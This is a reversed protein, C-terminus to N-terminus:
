VLGAVDGQGGGGGQGQPRARLRHPLRERAGRPRAPELAEVEVAGPDEVARVVRLARRGQGRREVVEARPRGRHDDARRRVLVQRAHERRQRGPRGHDDGRPRRRRARGRGALERGRGRARAGRADLLRGVRRGRQPQGAAQRASALEHDHRPRQEEDALDPRQQEAGRGLAALAPLSPRWPARHGRGSRVRAQAAAPRAGDRGRAGRWSERGSPRLGDRARGRGPEPRARGARVRGVALRALAVAAMAAALAAAMVADERPWGHRDLSVLVLLPFLAVTVLIAADSDRLAALLAVLLALAYLATPPHLVLTAAFATALGKGGRFGVYPSFCHGAVAGLTGLLAGLLPGQDSALPGFPAGPGALGGLLGGLYAALAGKGADVAL